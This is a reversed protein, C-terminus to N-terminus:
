GIKKDHGQFWDRIEQVWARARSVLGDPNTEAKREFYRLRFPVERAAGSVWGWGYDSYNFNCWIDNPSSLKVSRWKTEAEAPETAELNNRSFVAVALLLSEDAIVVFEQDTAASRNTVDREVLLGVASDWTKHWGECPVASAMAVDSLTRKTLTKETAVLFKRVRQM